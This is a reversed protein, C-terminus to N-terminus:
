VAETEIEGGNQRAFGVSEILAATEEIGAPLVRHEGVDLQDGFWPVDAGAAVLDALERRAPRFPVVFEAVSHAAEPFSVGPLNRIEDLADGPRSVQEVLTAALRPRADVEDSGMVAEVEVIEDGVVVLVILGIALVVAVAM